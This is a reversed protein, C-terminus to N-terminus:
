ARCNLLSLNAAAITISEFIRQSLSIAGFVGSTIIVPYYTVLFARASAELRDSM